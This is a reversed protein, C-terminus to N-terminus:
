RVPSRSCRVARCAACHRFRTPLTAGPALWLAADNARRDGTREAYIAREIVIAGHQRAYDRWVGAVVFSHKAGALPLEIREGAHYGYRDAV